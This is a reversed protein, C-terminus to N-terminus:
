QQKCSVRVAKEGPVVKVANLVCLILTVMRANTM